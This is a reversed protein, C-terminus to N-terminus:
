RSRARRAACDGGRHAEHERVGEDGPETRDRRVDVGIVALREDDPQDALRDGRVLEVGEYLVERDQVRHADLQHQHMPEPRLDVLLQLGLPVRRLKARPWRM